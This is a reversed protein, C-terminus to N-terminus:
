CFVCFFFGGLCVHTFGGFEHHTMLGSLGMFLLCFFFMHFTFNFFFFQQLYCDFSDLDIKVYFVFLGRQWRLTLRVHFGFLHSLFLLYLFFCLIAQQLCVSAKGGVCKELYPSVGKSSKLLILSPRRKLEWIAMYTTM